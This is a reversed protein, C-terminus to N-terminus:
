RRAFEIARTEQDFQWWYKVCVCILATSVTLSYPREDNRRYAGDRSANLCSDLSINAAPGMHQVIHSPKGRDPEDNKDDGPHDFSLLSPYFSNRLVHWEPSFGLGRQAAAVPGEFWYLVHVCRFFFVVLVAFGKMMTDLVQSSFCWHWCRWSCRSRFVVTSVKLSARWGRRRQSLFLLPFLLVRFTIPFRNAQKYIWNGAAHLNRVSRIQSFRSGCSPYM